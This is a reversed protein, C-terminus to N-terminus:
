FYAERENHKIHTHLCININLLYANYHFLSSTNFDGTSNELCFLYSSIVLWVVQVNPKYPLCSLENQKFLYSAKCGVQSM